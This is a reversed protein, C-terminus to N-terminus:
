RRAARCRTLAVPATRELRIRRGTAAGTRDTSRCVMSGHREAPRNIVSYLCPSLAHRYPIHELAADLAANVANDLRILLVVSVDPLLEVFVDDGFLQIAVQATEELAIERGQIVGSLSAAIHPDPDGAEEATTFGVEDFDKGVQEGIPLHALFPLGAFGLVEKFVFDGIGHQRSVNGAGNGTVGVHQQEVDVAFGIGIVGTIGDKLHEQFDEVFHAAEAGVVGMNGAQLLLQLFFAREVVELGFEFFRCAGGPQILTVTVGEVRIGDGGGVASRHPM